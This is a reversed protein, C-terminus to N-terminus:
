AANWNKSLLKRVIGRAKETPLIAEAIAEGHLLLDRFRKIEKFDELAIDAEKVDLLFSM